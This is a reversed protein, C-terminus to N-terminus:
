HDSKNLIGRAEELSERINDIDCQQNLVAKGTEKLLTFYPVEERNKKDHPLYHMVGDLCEDTIGYDPFFPDMERIIYDMEDDPLLGQKWSLIVETLMGAMVAEGHLLPDKDNKLSYSELAHGITHGFNLMKRINKEFPDKIIIGSKIEVSIRIHDETIEEPGISTLRDFFDSEAILGHKLMEAFGNNIQRPPLTELFVPDIFVGMPQSFCGIINKLEDLDVGTKGGIAADAMAMLSTPIHLFRIGRKYVSAAFGGMDCVVGGGLNILLSHRDAMKETLIKWISHCTDLNKFKEGAPVEIVKLPNEIMQQLLPFCDRHTNSDTLVFFSTEPKFHYALFDRLQQQESASYFVPHRLSDSESSM